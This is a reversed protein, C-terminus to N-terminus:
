NAPATFRKSEITRLVGLLGHMHLPKLLVHVRSRQVKAALSKLNEDLVDSLIAVQRPQQDAPLGNLRTVFDQEGARDSDVVVLDARDHQLLQVAEQASHATAIEHGLENLLRYEPLGSADVSIGHLIITKLTLQEEAM